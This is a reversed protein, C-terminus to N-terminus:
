ITQPQVEQNQVSTDEGERKTPNDIIRGCRTCETTTTGVYVLFRKKCAPCTCDITHQESM